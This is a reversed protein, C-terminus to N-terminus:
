QVAKKVILDFDGSVTADESFNSEGSLTFEGTLRGSKEDFVLNTIKAENNNGNNTMGFIVIETNTEKRFNFNIRPEIASTSSLEELTFTITISGGNNIDHRVINFSYYDEGEFTEFSSYYSSPGTYQSFSFKENLDTGKTTEGVFTGEINGQSKYELAPVDENKCGTFVMALAAFLALLQNTKKM